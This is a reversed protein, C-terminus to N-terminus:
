LDSYTAVLGAVIEKQATNLREKLSLIAVTRGLATLFYIKPAYNTIHEGFEKEKRCIEDYLDFRLDDSFIAETSKTSSFSGGGVNTVDRCNDVLAVHIANSFHLGEDVDIFSLEEKMDAFPELDTLSYIFEHIISEGVAGNPFSLMALLVMDDARLINTEPKKKKFLMHKVM